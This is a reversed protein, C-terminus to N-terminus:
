FRIMAPLFFSFFLARLWFLFFIPSAHTPTTQLNEGPPIKSPESKKSIHNILPERRWDATLAEQSSPLSAILSANFKHRRGFLLSKQRILMRINNRGDFLYGDSVVICCPPSPSRLTSRGTISWAWDMDVLPRTTHALFVTAHTVENLSERAVGRRAYSSSLTNRQMPYTHMTYWYQFANNEADYGYTTFNRFYKFCADM